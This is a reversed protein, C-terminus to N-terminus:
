ILLRDLAALQYCSLVFGRSEVALAAVYGSLTPTVTRLTWRQVEAPDSEIHLLAAPEGAALSVDFNRLPLSLGEGRAKVFAEKRTWGRFFAAPQGAAPLARLAAVERPSFFREAIHTGALEPRVREVDVGIRAGRAFALLAVEHSHSVNFTIANKSEGDPRLLFPKGFQTYGLTVAPASQGLYGALLLRLVARVIIFQRRDPQFHFRAARAQEEAALVSALHRLLGEPADLRVQWIHVTQEPLVPQSPPSLWTEGPVEPAATV